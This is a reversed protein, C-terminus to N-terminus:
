PELMLRFTFPKWRGNRIAIAILILAATFCVAVAVLSAEPGFAGGTLLVNGSLPVKFIGHFAKGSVIAGFVGGETFNWAFHLGIPFWLNRSVMYAAALLVGAELAIAITSVATAGPNGIHYYAFLAASLIIAGLTGVSEELIRFFGGRYALEEGIGSIIAIILMILAGGFGARGEWHAVGLLFLVGYILCFLLFGLLAGWAALRRGRGRFSLETAPRREFLRVLLVYTGLMVLSFFATAALMAPPLFADPLKNSIWELPYQVGQYVAHLVVFFVLLRVIAVRSLTHWWNAKAVVIETTVHSRYSAAHLFAQVFAVDWTDPRAVRITAQCFYSAM